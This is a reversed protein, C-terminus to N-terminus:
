TVKKFIAMTSSYIMRDDVKVGDGIGFVHLDYKLGTVHCLVSCWNFFEDFTPEYHHDDHRFEDEAMGYFKNFEKNPATIIFKRFDSNLISKVLVDADNLPMHEIVETLLIDTRSPDTTNIFEQIEGRHLTIRDQLNRKNIFWENSEQIEDIDYAHVMDYLKALRKAYYLEGCGIDHLFGHGTLFPSIANYRHDQSNGFKIDYKGGDNLSERVDNFVNPSRILRISLNHRMDYPAGSMNLARVYKKVAQTDAPIYNREDTIAHLILYSIAGNMLANITSNQVSFTVIATRGILEEIEIKLNPNLTKTRHGYEFSALEVVVQLSHDGPVDEEMVDRIANRFFETIIAIPLYSSTYRTRDLYEYDGCTAFSSQGVADIFIAKFTQDDTYWGYVTGKRVSKEFPVNSQRQTEPNKCLVYSMKPNTSKLTFM